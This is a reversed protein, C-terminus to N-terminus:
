SRPVFQVYSQGGPMIVLAKSENEFRVPMKTGPIPQLRYKLMISAFAYWISRYAFRMGICNRPGEGFPMYPRTGDDNEPLFRDPDFTDPEPYYDPDHQMGLGNLYVPTGKTITLNDDIRYDRDAVRDLWGMPPYKRLTEKIVCNLYVLKSYVNADFDNDGLRQKAELLEQYLKEQMEPRYALESTLFTLTSASTDFGGQLFICAQAIMLDEDMDENNIDAEYKIKRLADLLDNEQAVNTYGGRQSVIKKYVRRFIDESHKPFFKFGFFNACEPIFFISSWALGRMISFKMFDKTVTRLVSEGTMTADCQIGFAATGIVDTTYDAYLSRLELPKNAKISNDIRQVLEKGKTAFLNHLSKLKSSTFVPTLRRRLTTWLPDNLTFINLGGMPDMKGTGTGILRNRFADFDKVLIRRALEPSNVILAPRWFLWIGVYPTKPYRDYMERMWMAPNVKMLFTLSGLLINPPQHPVGRAAWYRKVNTWKMYFWGLFLLALIYLLM